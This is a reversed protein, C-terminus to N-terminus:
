QTEADLFDSDSSLFASTQALPDAPEDDAPDAFATELLLEDAIHEVQEALDDDGHTESNDKEVTEISLLFPGIRATRGERLRKWIIPDGDVYVGVSSGADAICWIGDERYLVCHLRSVSDHNLILDRSTSRGITLKDRGFLSVQRFPKGATNAISLIDM